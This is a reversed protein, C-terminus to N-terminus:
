STLAALIRRKGTFTARGHMSLVNDLMLFDRRQWPFAVTNRDLTDLIHYLDQRAVRSGDAHFVEHLRTHPRAYFLKAGVWRWGGLLRPNFDYLHPQCFWVWEKTEKHTIAAPRTQSIRLWNGGANWEFAFDNARCLAEVQARDDTEFVQRWSKHSPQLSNLLEMVRSHGYYCSVYKIQRQMFRERMAPDLAHYIRRADGLITEGHEAPAVECFFFIHKPYDRVFSLENHLPIKVASPAETSTYVAGTIKTRPSDGGIYNVAPGTALAAVLEAFDQASEVPFGRFLLGGHTLLQARLADAHAALLRPLEARSTPRKPKLVLPLPENGFLSLEFADQM